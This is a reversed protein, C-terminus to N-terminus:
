GTLDIDVMLRDAIAELSGRLADVEVGAPLVVTTTAEFLPEGSMPAASTTSTLAEINAGIEALAAAVAHVLGPRDNGVLSIVLRQGDATPEPGARDVTVHLGAGHGLGALADRLQEDQGDPASVEVIGAFKGGLRAMQSREWNGGHREIVGALDDVLGPRDPGLVTFVFKAM